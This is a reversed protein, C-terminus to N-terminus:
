IVAKTALGVIERQTDSKTAITADSQKRQRNIEM